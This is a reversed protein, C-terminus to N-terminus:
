RVEFRVARQATTKGLTAEITLVFPGPALGSLPLAIHEDAARTAGGFSDAGFGDVRDLVTVGHSDVIHIVLSLPVLPTTGGQYVRLFANVLDRSEFAREGTPVIPVLGALADKPAASPHATADLLVGSLSVPENAFDPIEVDTFVSGKKDDLSTHVSLRLEYRGPKLEVHSLVEYRITDTASGARVTIHATQQQSGRQTGEPTFASTQVDVTETAREGPASQSVGLVVAVSAMGPTSSAFPAVTVRLPVDAKPLMAAITSTLPAEARLAAAKADAKADSAYYGSRTRVEVGPRDVKVEVRHLNGSGPDTAQYALLYYSANEVFMAEVAPGFDNTNIIARGGTNSASSLLFDQDNNMEKQAVAIAAAAPLGASIMKNRVFSELAGLGGPDISYIAVNARQADHFIQQLEDALKMQLDRDAMQGIDGGSPGSGHALVPSKADFDVPVGPSVYILTKRRQPAESLYEVVSSLVRESSEYFHGDSNAGNCPRTMGRGGVGGANPRGTDCGFLYSAYKPDLTEVAALLKAHDSTFDQAHGNSATFVISMLDTPSLRDIVKKAADKAYAKMQPDDPILADDLIMVFLRGDSLRNTQVDPAVDRMWAVPPPPLTAPDPLDVAAFTAIKRPKGDELITFDEAKLGRVPHRDKDLVSADVQILDVVAHFTPQQAPAPVPEPPRAGRQAAVGMVGVCVVGWVCLVARRM